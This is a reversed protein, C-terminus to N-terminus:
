GSPAIANSRAAGSHAQDMENFRQIYALKFQLARPGTFSMALLTFGDKTMDLSRLLRGRPDKYNSPAFNREIFERSCELRDIARLM